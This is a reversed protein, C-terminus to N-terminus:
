QWAGAASTYIEVFSEASLSAGGILAGDINGCAFLEAANAPTVSGGYVIPIACYTVTSLCERITGHTEQAQEPTAALGTGIAWVPEYAVIVSELNTSQMAAFVEEIQRMVVKTTSGANREELLEGVCIIPRLGSEIARVAKKGILENSEQQYRRRESHGVIVFDCGLERLAVASVEGTYAGKEDHHCNQAGLQIHSDQIERQAAELSTYPPCVVVAVSSAAASQPMQARISAVLRASETPTTHMKWNGVVLKERM